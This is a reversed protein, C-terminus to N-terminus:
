AADKKSFKQVWQAKLTALRRLESGLHPMKVRDDILTGHVEADLVISIGAMACALHPLGSEPDIDEGSAWMTLHRRIADIYDRAKIPVQRWNHAGYKIAGLDHAAALYMQSVEPVTSYSLKQRGALAKPNDTM